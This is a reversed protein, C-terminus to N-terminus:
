WSMAARFIKRHLKFKNENVTLAMKPKLIGAITNILITPQSQELIDKAGEPLEFYYELFSLAYHLSTLCGRDKALLFLRSWDFQNNKNLFIAMDVLLVLRYFQHQCTAHLVYYLFRIEASPVSFKIKRWECVQTQDQFDEPLIYHKKLFRPAPMLEWHLQVPVLQTMKIKPHCTLEGRVAFDDDVTDGMIEPFYDTKTLIELALRADNSTMLLDIDGIHRWSYEPYILTGWFPGKYPTFNIKHATFDAFLQKVQIYYNQERALNQLQIKEFAYKLIDPKFIEPNSIAAALPLLKHWNLRELVWSSDRDAVCNFRDELQMMGQICNFLTQQKNEV